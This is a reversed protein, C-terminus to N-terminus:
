CSTPYATTCSSSGLNIDTLRGLKGNGSAVVRISQTEGGNLPNRYVAIGNIANNVIAPGPPVLALPTRDTFTTRTPPRFTRAYTYGVTTMKTFAIEFERYFNDRGNAYLPTPDTCQAATIANISGVAFSDVNKGIFGRAPLANKVSGGYPNMLGNFTSIGELCGGLPISLFSQVTAWLSVATNSPDKPLLSSRETQRNVGRPFNPPHGVTNTVCGFGQSTSRGDVLVPGPFVLNNNNVAQNTNFRPPRPATAIGINTASPACLEGHLGAGMNLAPSDVVNNVGGQASM